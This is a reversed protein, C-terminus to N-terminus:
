WDPDNGIQVNSNLMFFKCLQRYLLRIMDGVSPQIMVSKQKSVVLDGVSEFRNLCESRSHYHKGQSSSIGVDAQELVIANGIWIPPNPALHSILVDECNRIEDIWDVVDRHKSTYDMFTEILSKHM